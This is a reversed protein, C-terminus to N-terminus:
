DYRGRSFVYGRTYITLHVAGSNSSSRAAIRSSTDTFLIGAGLCVPCKGRGEGSGNCAECPEYEYKKLLESLSLNM